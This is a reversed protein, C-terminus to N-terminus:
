VSARGFSENIVIDNLNTFVQEDGQVLTACIKVDFNNFNSKKFVLEIWRGHIWVATNPAQRRRQGNFPQSNSRGVEYIGNRFIVVMVTINDLSHLQHARNTLLKAGFDPELLYCDKILDVAEQSKLVDWLGDSALIMFKPQHMDLKFTTIDPKAVIVKNGIKRNYDGLSRSMSLGNIRWAGFDFYVTGGAKEIRNREKLNSFPKHDRSLDIADDESDCMVVRSDGVNAVTLKTAEAIVVVCTTGSGHKQHLAALTLQRELNSIYDCLMQGTNLQGNSSDVYPSHGPSSKGLQIADFLAKTLYNKASIAAYSGNHGDLIAYVGINYITEFRISFDEMYLRGGRTSYVASIPGIEENWTKPPRWKSRSPYVPITSQLNIPQNRYPSTNPKFQYQNNYQQNFMSQDITQKQYSDFRPFCSSFRILLIVSFIFEKRHNLCM